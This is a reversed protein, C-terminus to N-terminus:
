KTFAEFKLTIVGCYVSHEDLAALDILPTIETSLWHFKNAVTAAMFTASFEELLTVLNDVESTKFRGIRKQVVIATDVTYVASGRSMIDATQEVPAVSVRLTNLERLSYKPMWERVATFEQSYGGLNLRTTIADALETALSM